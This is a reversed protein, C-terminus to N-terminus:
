EEIVIHHIVEVQDHTPVSKSNGFQPDCETSEQMFNVVWYNLTSYSLVIAYTLYHYLDCWWRPDTSFHEITHGIRRIQKTTLHTLRFKQSLFFSPLTAVNRLLKFVHLITKAASKPVQLQQAVQVEMPSDAPITVRNLDNLDKKKFHDKKLKKKYFFNYIKHVM